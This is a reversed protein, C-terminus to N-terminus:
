RHPNSFSEAHQRLQLCQRDHLALLQARIVVDDAVGGVVPRRHRSLVDGVLGTDFRPGVGRAGQLVKCQLGGLGGQLVGAAPRRGFSIPATSKQVHVLVRSM